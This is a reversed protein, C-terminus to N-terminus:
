TVSTKCARTIIIIECVSPDNSANSSSPFWYEKAANCDKNAITVCTIIASAASSERFTGDIIFLIGRRNNICRYHVHAGHYSPLFILYFLIACRRFAPPLHFKLGRTNFDLYGSIEALSGLKVRPPALGAPMSPFPPDRPRSVPKVYSMFRFPSRWPSAYRPLRAKSPAFSVQASNLHSAVFGALRGCHASGARM